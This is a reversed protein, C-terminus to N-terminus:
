NRAGKTAKKLCVSFMSPFVCVCLLLDLLLFSFLMYIRLMKVIAKTMKSAALALRSLSFSRDTSTCKTVSNRNSYCQGMQARRGGRARARARAWATGALPRPRSPRARGRRGTRARGGWSPGPAGRRRGGRVGGVARGRGSVAARGGARGWPRRWGCM